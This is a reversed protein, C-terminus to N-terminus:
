EETFERKNKTAMKLGLQPGDWEGKVRVTRGLAHLHLTVGPINKKDYLDPTSFMEFENVGYARAAKLYSSINEMQKFKSTKSLSIKPVSKPRLKNILRCLMVGSRLSDEFTEEEFEKGTM